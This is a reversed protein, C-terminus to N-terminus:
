RMPGGAGRRSEAVRHEARLKSRPFRLGLFHSQESLNAVDISTRSDDNISVVDDPVISNDTIIGDFASYSIKDFRGLVHRKAPVM